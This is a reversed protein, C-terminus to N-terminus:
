HDNVLIIMIQVEDHKAVLGLSTASEWWHKPTPDNNSILIKGQDKSEMQRVEVVKFIVPPKPIRPRRGRPKIVVFYGKYMHFTKPTLYGKDKAHKRAYDSQHKQQQNKINALATPTATEM